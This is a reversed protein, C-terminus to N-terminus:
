IFAASVAARVRRRCIWTNGARAAAVAQNAGKGGPAHTLSSALVTEGPRPLSGVGFTSDM